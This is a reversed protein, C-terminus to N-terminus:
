DDDLGENSPGPRRAGGGPRTSDDGEGKQVDLAGRKSQPREHAMGGAKRAEKLLNKSAEVLSSDALRCGEPTCTFVVLHPAEPPHERILKGGRVLLAMAEEVTGKAFYPSLLRVIASRGHLGQQVAALCPIVARNSLLEETLGSEPEEPALVALAPTARLDESAGTELLRSIDREPKL